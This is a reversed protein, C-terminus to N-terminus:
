MDYALGLCSVNILVKLDGIYSEESSIIEEVIKRRQLSRLWASEDIIPGLPGPNSDTSKRVDSFNSSRKGLRVRAQLHTRESHPAISSGALTISASRVATVCGMSSSGSDSYRRLSQPAQLPSSLKSADIDDGSPTGPATEKRRQVHRKRLTSMWRRFAPPIVEAAASLEEAQAHPENDVSHPRGREPVPVHIAEYLDFIESNGNDDSEDSDIDMLDVPRHEASSETSCRIEKRRKSYPDAPAGVRPVAQPQRNIGCNRKRPPDEYYRVPIGHKDREPGLDLLSRSTLPPPTNERGHHWEGPGIPGITYLSCASANRPTITRLAGITNDKLPSCSRLYPNDSFSRKFPSQPRLSLVSAM